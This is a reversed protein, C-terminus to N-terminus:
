INHNLFEITKELLKKTSESQTNRDFDHMPESVIFTSCKFRSSLEKFENYSVDNDNISHTFFIPCPMTECLALSYDLFFFKERGEYFLNKWKGTQRAYVYISYRIDLSGNTCIIDKCADICNESVKPFTNYYDSPTEFWDRCLFGYGYYSLIGNPAKSLKKSAALLCLYAGASRGWLFYPLNDYKDSNSIYYEISQIIDTLIVDIKSEPALPYDFSIISFGAKTLTDIHLDPLDERSGYVLGGGHFYLIIAKQTINTESYITANKIYNETKIEINSKLKM